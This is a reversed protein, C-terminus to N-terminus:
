PQVVLKHPAGQQLRQWTQQIADLRVTELDVTLAGDLAHRTLQQYAARRVDVPAVVVSSGIISIHKNRFVPAALPATPGAANGVQVFRAGMTAHEIARNVIDGWLLDVIVHYGEPAAETLSADVASAESTGLDLTADAGNKMAKKLAAPNRGAIVVRGAGLVKAIQVALQGVAGAGLILVSEGRQLGGRCELALWAALGPVGLAAALAPDLDRPVPFAFEDPVPVYEALTGYPEPPSMLYSRTGDDFEVVGEYGAVFPPAPRRHPMGGGAIVLDLPNLAAAVLTGVRQGNAPTPQPFGALVPAKGFEHIVAAKM